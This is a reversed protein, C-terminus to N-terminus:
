NSSKIESLTTINKHVYQKLFIYGDDTEDPILLPLNNVKYIFIIRKLPLFISKEIGIEYELFSIITSM